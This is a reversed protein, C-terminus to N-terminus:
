PLNIEVVPRNADTTGGGKFWRANSIQVCTASGGGSYADNRFKGVDAADVSAQTEAVTATAQSAGAAVVIDSVVFEGASGATAAVLTITRPVASATATGIQSFDTDIQTAVAAITAAHSSAYTVQTMSVGDVKLNITNSTVFDASFTIVQVQPAAAFRVFVSDGKVVSEEVEVAIKGRTLVPINSDVPYNQDETSMNRVIVGGIVNNSADMAKVAEDASTDEACARGAYLIDDPNAKSAIAQESINGILQGPVAYDMSDKYVTQSM